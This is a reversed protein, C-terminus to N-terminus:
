EEWALKPTRGPAHKFAGGLEAAFAASQSYELTYKPNEGLTLNADLIANKLTEAAKSSWGIPQNSKTEGNISVVDPRSYVNTANVEVLASNTESLRGIFAGVSNNNIIAISGFNFFNNLNLNQKHGNSTNVSYSLGGAYAQTSVEGANYCNIVTVYGGNYLCTGILGGATEETTTVNGTNYCNQIVGRVDSALGAGSKLVNIASSNYCNSLKGNSGISYVLGAVYAADDGFTSGRERGLNKIEGHPLGEFLSVNSKGTADINLDKIVHGKGDLTGYFTGILTNTVTEDGSFDLDTTLEFYKQYTAEISGLLAIDV